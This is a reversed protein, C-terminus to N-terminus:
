SMTVHCQLSVQDLFWLYFARPATVSHCHFLSSDFLNVFYHLIDCRSCPMVSVCFQFSLMVAISSSQLYKQFNSSETDLHDNTKWIIAPWLTMLFFFEKKTWFFKVNCMQQKPNFEFAIFNYIQLFITFAIWTSCSWITQKIRNVFSLIPAFGNIYFQNETNVNYLRGRM